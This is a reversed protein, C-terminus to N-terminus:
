NVVTTLKSTAKLCFYISFHPKKNKLIDCTYFGKCQVQTVKELTENKKCNLIKGGPRIWKFSLTPDPDAFPLVELTM